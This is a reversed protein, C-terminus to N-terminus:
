SNTSPFSAFLPHLAPFFVWKNHTGHDTESTLDLRRRVSPTRRLTGTVAGWGRLVSGGPAPCAACYLSLPPHVRGDFISVTSAIALCLRGYRPLQRVSQM